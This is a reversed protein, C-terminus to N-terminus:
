FLDNKFSYNWEVLTNSIVKKGKNTTEKFDLTKLGHKISYQNYYEKKSFNNIHTAHIISKFIKKRIVIKIIEIVDEVHILNLPQNELELNKKILSNIPHRSDSILGSCRIITKDSFIQEQNFVRLSRETEPKPILDESVIFQKNSFVSTSSIFIIKKEKFLEKFEALELESVKSPPINIIFLDVNLFFTSCEKIKNISFLIGKYSTNEKLKSTNTGIVSFGEEILSTALHHGLHGAGIVAISEINKITM